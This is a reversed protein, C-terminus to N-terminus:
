RLLQLQVAHQEELFSELVNKCLQPAVCVNRLFIGIYIYFHGAFSVDTYSFLGTFIVQECVETANDIRETYEHDFPSRCFLDIYMLLSM